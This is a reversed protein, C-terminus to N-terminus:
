TCIYTFLLNEGCISSEDGVAALSARNINLLAANNSGVLGTPTGTVPYNVDPNSYYNVRTRHGAANYALITRYGTSASGQAILHGLAYPYVPNTAVEPNHQLGINHGVEHGFSYYGVACNKRTVTLTNGSSIVNLYGVGCFDFSNILLAAADATDRLEAASSKMNAFASIIASSSSGSVPDNITALESCHKTVTLQVQSSAYGQNTESIIQDLFGDIDPTAAAFQPTYYFKVSYTVMTTNDAAAQLITRSAKGRSEYDLGINDGMNALDLEKWVHGDEGCSEITFSKGTSTTAHGHLGGTNPNFTLILDSGGGGYHFANSNGPVLNLFNVSIGGPLEITSQGLLSLDVNVAQCSLTGSGECCAPTNVTRRRTLSVM